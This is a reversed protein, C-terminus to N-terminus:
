FHDILNGALDSIWMTRLLFLLDVIGNTNVIEQSLLLSLTTILDIWFHIKWYNKAITLRNMILVGEKYFGTNFNIM